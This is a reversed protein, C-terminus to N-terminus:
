AQAEEEPEAVAVEEVVEPQTELTPVAKQQPQSSPAKVPKFTMYGAVGALALALLILIQNIGFSSESGESKNEIEIVKCGDSDVKEGLPTSPCLDADNLVGDADTDAQEASCGAGNVITSLPTRPCIDADNLVGDADDDVDEEGDVCGDSDFDQSPLVPGVLGRPCLDFIDAFGDGDDDDDEEEDHCGDQDRDLSTDSANWDRYGKPCMDLQNSGIMDLMSDNDDDLDNISDQCGDQDWDNMETSDWLALDRPCGDEINAVGDGDEDLDCADGISDGDLDEQGANSTGPCNDRQDVFGDEDTDFDSCGDGEVDTEATSVWGIPGKPCSDLHDYVTDNDDDFDEDADRCGDSDHDTGATSTWGIEGQGCMDLDDAIGDNDDDEDCVDGFMDSEFNAQDANSVRPCNDIGDLVGDGDLDTEYHWVGGDEDGVAVVSHNGYLGSDEFSFAIMSGGTSSAVIDNVRDRGDSGGLLAWQWDNDFDYEALFIDTGFYSLDDDYDVLVEGGLTFTYTTVGALIVSGSSTRYAASFMDYGAGGEINLGDWVGDTTIDAQFADFWQTTESSDLGFTANGEITGFVQVDLGAGAVCGNVLDDGSGGAQQLWIWGTEDFKAVVIDGGGNSEVSGIEDFALEGIFTLTVFTDGVSNQCFGGFPEVGDESMASFGDAFIGYEDFMMVALSPQSGGAFITQNMDLLEKFLVGVHIQDYEDVFMDFMLVEQQNAISVAWQWGSDIDYRAIYANGEESDAEKDLTPLSGLTMNCQLGASGLCYNGAIIFDGDSMLAVANVSDVGISGFSESFNWENTENSIAIFADMDDFGLQTSDHGNDGILLSSTFSGGALVSNNSLPVLANISDEGFGGVTVVWGLPDAEESNFQPLHEEDLTALESPQLTALVLALVIFLPRLM